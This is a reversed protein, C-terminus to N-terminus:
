SLIYNLLNIKASITYQNFSNSKHEFNYIKNTEKSCLYHQLLVRITSNSHAFVINAVFAHPM